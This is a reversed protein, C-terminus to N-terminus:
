RQHSSMAIYLESGQTVFSYGNVYIFCWPLCCLVPCMHMELCAYSNPEENCPASLVYSVIFGYKGISILSQM